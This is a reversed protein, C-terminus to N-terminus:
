GGRRKKKWSESVDQSALPGTRLVSVSRRQLGVGLTANTNGSCESDAYAGAEVQELAVLRTLVGKRGARSRRTVVAVERVTNAYFKWSWKKAKAVLLLSRPKQIEDPTGNRRPRHSPRDEITEATRGLCQCGGEGKRDSIM